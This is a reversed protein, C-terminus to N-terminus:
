ALMDILGRCYLEGGMYGSAPTSRGTARTCRRTRAASHCSQSIPAAVQMLALVWFAMAAFEYGAEGALTGDWGEENSTNLINHGRISHCGQQSLGSPM